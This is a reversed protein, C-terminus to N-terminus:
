NYLVEPGVPVRLLSFSMKPVRGHCSVIAALAEECAFTGEVVEGWHDKTDVMSRIHGEGDLRKAGGSIVVHLSRDEALKNLVYVLLEGDGRAAFGHVAKTTTHMSVMSTNTALSLMEFGFHMPNFRYSSSSDMLMHTSHLKNGGDGNDWFVAMDYGSVYMELAFEVAVLSKLYRTWEGGSDSFATNPKGLGFENNALLLEPRGAEKAAQRLNTLKQRWSEKSKHEMLPVEDMWMPVTFPPATTPRGGFPWKGHFEAGDMAAGTAKLFAKLNSPSMDNNNWFVKMTPDVKKMALAHNKIREAYKMALDENGIYYFAGPFGRDLVFRVQRLARAISESENVWLHQHCNYNVGVLPRMGVEKCLDLYESLSMWQDEPASGGHWDPDLSSEGMRGTPNEWNWYSAMGAPFRATAVRHQKAWKAITHNQYVADPAWAYVLSMSSLYQSIQWQPKLDIHVDVEAAHVDEEAAHVDAEAAIQASCTTPVQWTTCNGRKLKAVDRQRFLECKWGVTRNVHYWAACGTETACASCCASANSIGITRFAKAGYLTLGDAALGCSRAFALELMAPLLLGAVSPLRAM